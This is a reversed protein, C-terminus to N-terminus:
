VGTAGLVAPVTKFLIRLDLGLSWNEIYELDLAMNTSFSPDNRATVQWLGTIGPAVDLRRLDQPLYRARDDLPHPRPGVLSMSGTLVNWLQPLEDVSYRRLVRGLPTIRPDSSIKFTAGQRENRTRLEDKHEDAGSHMTRFKYCLFKRGKKGARPAVYFAPGSSELKILLAVCVLVPLALLLAITSVVIDLGRKLFLGFRPIPEEHISILPVPGISEITFKRPHQELLDPVVSIDLHNQLAEAVAREALAHDHGSAIIIEDIFETRAIEPLQDVTGLITPDSSHHSGLFGRVVRHRKPGAAL